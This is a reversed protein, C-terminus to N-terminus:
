SHGRAQKLTIYKNSLKGMPSTASTGGGKVVMAGGRTKLADIAILTPVDGAHATNDIAADVGRGGTIERVRDRVDEREADITFDAGLQKCIELRDVDSSLGTVIICEAGAAKAAVVCATGMQGPGQILVTKGP